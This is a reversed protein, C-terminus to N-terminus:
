IYDTLSGDFIGHFVGKQKYFLSGLTFSGKIEQNKM